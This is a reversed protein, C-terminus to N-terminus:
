PGCRSLAFEAAILDLAAFGVSKYVTIASAQRAPPAACLGALDGLVDAETILGARIAQLVEGGKALISARDDAYVRSRAMIAPDAEAMAQTFAGVLCLHQGPRVADAAIIPATATTAAAVIDAQAIAGLLDDVPAAGTAEAAARARAGDRGWVLVRDIPLMARHAAIIPAALAGTGIMLLTRSGPRALMSSALAAAAATRRNTLAMGDILARVRGTAQDFAVFVGDLAPSERPYVTVLKVGMLGAERWAPMLLLADGRGTPDIVTRPPSVVAGGLGRRLAECLEPWPTAAAFAAADIM